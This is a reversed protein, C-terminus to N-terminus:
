NSPTMSLRNSSHGPHLGWALLYALYGGGRPVRVEVGRLKRLGSNELPIPAGKMKYVEISLDDDILISSVDREVTLTKLTTPISVISVGSNNGRGYGVDVLVGNDERYCANGKAVTFEDHARLSARPIVELSTPVAVTDAEAVVSSDSSDGDVLDDSAIAHVGEPIDCTGGDGEYSLLVQGLGNPDYGVSMGEPVDELELPVLDILGSRSAEYRSPVSSSGSEETWGTFLRSLVQPGDASTASQVNEPLMRGYYESLDLLEGEDVCATRLYSGREWDSVRVKALHVPYTLSFKHWKSSSNPRFRFDVSLSKTGESIVKPYEGIRFNDGLSEIRYTTRKDSKSAKYSVFYYGARMLKSDNLHMGQYLAEIGVDEASVGLRKTDAESMFRAAVGNGDNYFGTGNSPYAVASALQPDLGDFSSQPLESGAPDPDSPDVTDDLQESDIGSVYDSDSVPTTDEKSESGTTKGDSGSLATSGSNSKDSQVSPGEDSSGSPESSAIQQQAASDGTDPLSTALEDDSQSDENEGVIQGSIADSWPLNQQMYQYFDAPTASNSGFYASVGGLAVSGTLAVCAIVLAQKQSLALARDLLQQFGGKLSM